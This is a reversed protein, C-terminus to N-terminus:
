RGSWRAGTAELLRLPVEGSPDAGTVTGYVARGGALAVYEMGGPVYWAADLGDIQVSVYQDAAAFIGHERMSRAMQRALWPSRLDYVDQWVYIETQPDVLECVAYGTGFPFLPARQVQNVRGSRLQLSAEEAPVRPLNLAQSAMVYAGDSQAPLPATGRWMALALVLVAALCVASLASLGRSVARYGLRRRACPMQGSQLRRRLRTIAGLAYSSEWVARLFSLGCFLLMWFSTLLDALPRTCALATLGGILLVSLLMIVFDRRYYRQLRAVMADQQPDGADYPQPVQAQLPAAFVYVEDRRAALRWGSDEYLQQKEAPLDDPEDLLAPRPTFELWFQLQQPGTRRYRDWRVGRKDLMWGRRAMAAYYEQTEAVAWREPTPRWTYKM